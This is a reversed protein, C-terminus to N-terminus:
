KILIQTSLNFLNKTYFFLKSYQYFSSLRIADSIKISTSVKLDFPQYSTQSYGRDVLTDGTGTQLLNIYPNDISAYLPISSIIAFSISKSANLELQALALHVSQNKPTFYPFYIGEVNKGIAGDANKAVYTTSDANSLQFAYGIRASIVKRKLLPYLAWGSYSNINNKDFLQNNFQVRGMLNKFNDINLAISKETYSTLQKASSVTYVYPEKSWGLDVSFNKYIRTHWQLQYLFASSLNLSFYGLTTRLSSHIKPFSFTNGFRVYSTKSTNTDWQHKNWNVDASLEFLNNIKKSISINKHSTILPQDDSHYNFSLNLKAAKALRYEYLFSQIGKFKLEKPTFLRIIQNAKHYDGKWYYTKALYLKAKTTSLNPTLLEIAKEYNGITLLMAGYDEILKMNDPMAKMALDYYDESIKFSHDLYALQAAYWIIEPQVKNKKVTLYRSIITYANHINGKKQEEKAQDIPGKVAPQAVLQFSALLMLLVILLMSKNRTMIM